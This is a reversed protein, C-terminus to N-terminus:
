TEPGPAPRARHPCRGARRADLVKLATDQDATIAQLDQIVAAAMQHSWIESPDAAGFNDALWRHFQTRTWGTENALKFIREM